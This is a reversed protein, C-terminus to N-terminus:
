FSSFFLVCFSFFFFVFSVFLILILFTFTVKALLTLTSIDPGYMNYWFHLCMSETLTVQPSELEAVDGPVGNTSEL